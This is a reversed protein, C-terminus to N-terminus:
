SCQLVKYRDYGRSLDTEELVVRFDRLFEELRFGGSASSSGHGESGFVSTILQDLLPSPLLHSLSRTTEAAIRTSDM